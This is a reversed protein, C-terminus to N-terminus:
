HKTKSMMNFYSIGKRFHNVLRKSRRRISINKIFKFIFQTVTINKFVDHRLSTKVSENQGSAVKERSILVLSDAKNRVLEKNYTDHRQPKILFRLSM